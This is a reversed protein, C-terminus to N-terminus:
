WYRYYQTTLLTDEDGEPTHFQQEMGLAVWHLSSNGVDNRFYRTLVLSAREDVEGAHDAELREREFYFYQAAVGWRRGPHM